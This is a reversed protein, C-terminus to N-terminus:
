ARSRGAEAMAEGILAAAQNALAAFQESPSSPPTSLQLAAVQRGRLRISTAYCTLGALVEERDTAFRRTGDAANMPGLLVSAAAHAPLERGRYLEVPLSEVGPVLNLVYASTGESVVCTVTAGTRERLAQLYREAVPRFDVAPENLEAMVLMESALLYRGYSLTVMGVDVLQDLLRYVSSRPIGTAVALAAVQGEAPSFPLAKLIAFAGELVGRGERADDRGTHEELRARADARRQTFLTADYGPGEQRGRTAAGSGTPSRSEFEHV